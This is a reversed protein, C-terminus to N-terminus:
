RPNTIAQKGLNIVNSYIRRIQKKCFDSKQYSFKEGILYEAARIVSSELKKMNLMKGLIWTVHTFGREMRKEHISNMVGVTISFRGLHKGM